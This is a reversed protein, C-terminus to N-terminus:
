TKEPQNKGPITDLISDLQNSAEMPTLCTPTSGPVKPEDPIDQLYNDLKEKFGVETVKKLNRISKPLSNFLKPGSCQFSEKRMFKIKASGNLKPMKCKRGTREATLLLRHTAAGSYQIHAEYIM